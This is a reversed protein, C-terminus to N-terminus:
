NDAVEAKWWSNERLTTGTADATNQAWQLTHTRTSTLVENQGSFFGIVAANGNVQPCLLGTVGDISSYSIAPTSPSSVLDERFIVGWDSFTGTSGGSLSWRFKIGAVGTPPNWRAFGRMEWRGVPIALSIHDDNQYTTSNTM